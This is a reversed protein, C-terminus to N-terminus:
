GNNFDEICMKYVDHWSMDVDMGKHYERYHETRLKAYNRADYVAYRSNKMYWVSQKDRYWKCNHKFSILAAKKNIKLVNSLKLNNMIVGREKINITNM